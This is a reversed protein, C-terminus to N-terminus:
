VVSELWERASEGVLRQELYKERLTNIALYYSDVADKEWDYSLRGAGYRM